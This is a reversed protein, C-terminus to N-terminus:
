PYPDDEKPEIYSSPKYSDIRVLQLVLIFKQKCFTCVLEGEKNTKLINLCDLCVFKTEAM